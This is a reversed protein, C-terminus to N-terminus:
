ISGRRRTRPQGAAPSYNKPLFQFENNYCYTSFDKEWQKDNDCIISIIKFYLVSDKFVKKNFVMNCDSTAGVSLTDASENNYFVVAYYTDIYGDNIFDDNSHSEIQSMLSNITNKNNVTLRKDYVKYKFYDNPSVSGLRRILWPM